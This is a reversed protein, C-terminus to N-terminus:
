ADQRKETQNCIVVDIYKLGMKKAVQLRHQGDLLYYEPNVTIPMWFDIDFNNVIFDVQSPDINNQFSFLSKDIRIKSLPVREVLTFFPQKVFTEKWLEIPIYKKM